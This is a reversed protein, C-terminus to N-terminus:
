KFCIAPVDDRTLQDYLASRDPVLRCKEGSRLASAGSDQVTLRELSAGNAIWVASTWGEIHDFIVHVLSQALSIAGNLAFTIALQLGQNYYLTYL